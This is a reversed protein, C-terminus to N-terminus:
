PMHLRETTNITAITTTSAADNCLQLLSWYSHNILRTFYDVTSSWRNWSTDPKECEMLQGTQKHMLASKLSIKRRCQLKNCAAWLCVRIPMYSGQHWMLPRRRGLPKQTNKMSLMLSNCFHSVILPSSRFHCVLPHLLPLRHEWLVTVWGGGRCCWYMCTIKPFSAHKSNWSKWWQLHMKKKVNCWLFHLRNRKIAELTTKIHLRHRQEEVSNRM